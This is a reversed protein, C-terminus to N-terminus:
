AQPTFAHLTGAAHADRPRACRHRRNKHISLTIAGYRGIPVMAKVIDCPVIGISQNGGDVRNQDIIAERIKNRRDATSRHGAANRQHNVSIVRPVIALRQESGRGM